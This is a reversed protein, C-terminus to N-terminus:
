RCKLVGGGKDVFHPYSATNKKLGERIHDGSSVTETTEGIHDESFVTEMDEGIHDGSSM